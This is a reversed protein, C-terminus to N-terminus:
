RTQCRHRYCPQSRFYACARVAHTGTALFSPALGVCLSCVCAAHMSDVSQSMSSFDIVPNVRLTLGFLASDISEDICDVVCCTVSACLKLQDCVTCAFVCCTCISRKREHLLKHTAYANVISRARCACLSRVVTARTPKVSQSMCMRQRCSTCVCVLVGIGSHGLASHQTVLTHKNGLLSRWTVLVANELVNLSRM